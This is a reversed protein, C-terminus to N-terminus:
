ATALFAAHYAVEGNPAPGAFAQALFYEPPPGPYVLGPDPRFGFRGYYAPEGLVVCGAASLARLQELGAVVLAAGIGQRQCTPDVALPGLGYWRCERGAITVPSFAVHGVIAQERDAVLSVTLAGAERLSRVIFQETHSSFQEPAFARQIVGAIAPADPPAEPRIQMLVNM